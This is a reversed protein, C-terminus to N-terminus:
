RAFERTYWAEFSDLSDWWGARAGALRARELWDCQEPTPKKGPAKVEVYLVQMLGGAASREARWDAAYKEGVDVTNRFIAERTIPGRELTRLLFGLPVHKGVHQRKVVWRRLRLYAVIQAEVQNEPMRDKPKRPPQAVRAAAPPKRPPQGALNGELLALDAETIGRAM